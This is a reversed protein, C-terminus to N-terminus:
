GLSCTKFFRGLSGGAVWLTEMVGQIRGLDKEIDRIKCLKEDVGGHLIKSPDNLRYYDICLRREILRNSPLQYLSMSLNVLLFLVLVPVVPAVRKRRRWPADQDSMSEDMPYHDTGGGSSINGIGVIYNFRRYSVNLSTSLLRCDRFIDRKRIKDYM